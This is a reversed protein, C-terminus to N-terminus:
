RDHKVGGVGGIPGRKGQVELRSEPKSLSADNAATPEFSTQDACAAIMLGLALPLLNLVLRASMCIREKWAQGPLEIM